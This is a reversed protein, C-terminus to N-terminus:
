NLWPKLEPKLGPNLVPKLAPNPEPKWDPKLSPKPVLARCETRVSAVEERSGVRARAIAACAVYGKM